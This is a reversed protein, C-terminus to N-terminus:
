GGGYRQDVLKQVHHYAQWGRDIMEDAAAILRPRWLPGDEWVDFLLKSLKETWEQDALNLPFVGVEFLAELGLFKDRYYDSNYLGIVPVGQALAFVAAHYSGAVVVRCNHLQSVIAGPSDVSSPYVHCYGETVLQVFRADEDGIYSSSPLPVLPISHQGAFRQLVERLRQGHEVNVQSYSAVRINIGVGNGLRSCRNQVAIELADDGTVMVRSLDVGLSELLPVSVRSERLGIFDVQPLIERARAAVAGDPQIPGFAQGFAVVLSKGNAKALGITDLLDLAYCEFADTIAGMGCVVLLNANRVADLFSDLAAANRSPLLKVMLYTLREALRPHARRIQSEWQYIASPVHGHRLFGSMWLRRGKSSLGNVKPAYSPLRDPDDTFVQIEAVPWFGAIRSVATQQMAIDGVNRLPSTYHSPEILIRM